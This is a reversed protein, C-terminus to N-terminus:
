MAHDLTNVTIDTRLVDPTVASIHDYLDNKIGVSDNVQLSKQTLVLIPMTNKIVLLCYKLPQM